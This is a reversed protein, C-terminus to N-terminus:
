AAYRGRDVRKARVRRDDLGGIAGGWGRGQGSGCRECRDVYEQAFMSHHKNCAAQYLGCAYKVDAAFAALPSPLRTYVGAIRHVTPPLTLALVGLGRKPSCCCSSCICRQSVRCLQLAGDDVLHVWARVQMLARRWAM